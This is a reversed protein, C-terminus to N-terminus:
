PVQGLWDKKKQNGNPAIFFRIRQRVKTRIVELAHACLEVDDDVPILFSISVGFLEQSVLRKHM